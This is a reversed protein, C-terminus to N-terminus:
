YDAPAGATPATTRPEVVGTATGPTVEVLSAAEVNTEFHGDGRERLPTAPRYSFSAEGGPPIPGPVTHFEARSPDDTGPHLENNWLWKYRIALRVDRIAKNSRNVVTGSVTGDEAPRLDRIAVERALQRAPVVREEGVTVQEAHAARAGAVALLAAAAVATRPVKTM